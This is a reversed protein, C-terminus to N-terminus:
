RRAVVPHHLLTRGDLAAEVRDGPHLPGVGPPTGTLILDGPALTMVSSIYAVLRLVNWLMDRTTGDQRKTGNVSLSLRAASPDVESKELRTSVPCFTDYGKAVLWPEGKAKAEQQLDRATVDVALCWGAVADLARDAPIDRARAGMVVGLEVEHHVEGIGRPIEIAAGDPVLSSPPKLFLIPRSPVVNGLEQAHAAYNRGVCVIKSPRDAAGFPWESGMVAAAASGQADRSAKPAGGARSSQVM